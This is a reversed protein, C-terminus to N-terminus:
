FIDVTYGGQGNGIVQYGNIHGTEQKTKGYSDALEYSSFTEGSNGIYPEGSDNQNQSEELTTDEEPYQTEEQYQEPQTSSTAVEGSPATNDNEISSPVKNSNKNETVNVTVVRTVQSGDKKVIYYTLPYQGVTNVDVKNSDPLVTEVDDSFSIGYMYNPTDGKEITIDAIGEVLDESEGVKVRIKKKSENDYQDVVKITLVYNGSDNFQYRYEPLRNEKPNLEGTTELLNDTELIEFSKLPAADDVSTVFESSSLIENKGITVMDRALITPAKTDAIVIKFLEKEGNINVSAEYEGPVDKVKTLDLKGKEIEKKNGTVYYSIEKSPEAGYEVEFVKTKLEYSKDDKVFKNSLLHYGFIILAILAVIAMIMAIWSIIQPKASVPIDKPEEIINNPPLFEKDNFKKEKM